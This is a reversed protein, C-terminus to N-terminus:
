PCTAGWNELVSTIDAFNVISDHNADGPGTSAPYTIGWHELTSTLDSSIILGDDNADGSCYASPLEWTDGMAHEDDGGFLVIRQRASDYALAHGLRPEISSPRAADLGLRGVGM